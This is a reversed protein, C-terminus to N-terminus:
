ALSIGQADVTPESRELMVFSMIEIFFINKLFNFLKKIGILIFINTMKATFRSSLSQPPLGCEKPSSFNVDDCAVSIERQWQSFYQFM